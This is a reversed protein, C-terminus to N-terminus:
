HGKAGPNLADAVTPPPPLEMSDEYPRGNDQLGGSQLDELTFVSSNGEVDDEIPLCNSRREKRLSFLWVLVIQTSMDVALDIFKM